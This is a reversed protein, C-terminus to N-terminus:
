DAILPRRDGLPGLNGDLSSAVTAIGIDGENRIM